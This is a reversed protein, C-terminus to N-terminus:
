GFRFAGVSFSSDAFDIHVAILHQLKWKINTVSDLEKNWAFHKNQNKITKYISNTQKKKEERAQQQSDSEFEMLTSKGNRRTETTKHSVFILACWEICVLYAFCVCVVCRYLRRHISHVCLLLLLLVLFFFIRGDFGYLLICLAIVIACLSVLIHM